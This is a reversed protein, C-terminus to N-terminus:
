SLLSGYVSVTQVVHSVLFQDTASPKFSIVSPPSNRGGTRKRREASRQEVAPQVSEHDILPCPSSTGATGCLVLSLALESAPGSSSDAATTFWVPSSTGATGCLVLSLALQSAPGSSSDV